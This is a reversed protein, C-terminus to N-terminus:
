REKEAEKPTEEVRTLAILKVLFNVRPFISGCPSIGVSLGHLATMLISSSNIGPSFIASSALWRPEITGKVIAVSRIPSPKRGRTRRTDGNKLWRAHFPRRVVDDTHWSRFFAIFLRKECNSGIRRAATKSHVRNRSGNGRKQAFWRRGALKRAPFRRENPNSKRNARKARSFVRRSTRRFLMEVSSSCCIRSTEKEVLASRRIKEIMGSM